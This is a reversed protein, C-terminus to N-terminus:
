EQGTAAPVVHVAAAEAGHFALVVLEHLLLMPQLLM